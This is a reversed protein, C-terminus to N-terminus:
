TASGNASRSDTLSDASNAPKAPEETPAKHLKVGLGVGLDIQSTKGIVGPTGTSGSGLPFNEVNLPPPPPTDHKGQYSFRPYGVGECKNSCLNGHVMARAEFFVPAQTVSLGAMSPALM